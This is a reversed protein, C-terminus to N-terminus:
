PKYVKFCISQDYMNFILSEDLRFRKGLTNSYALLSVVVEVLERHGWWVQSNAIITDVTVAPYPTSFLSGAVVASSEVQCCIIYTWM